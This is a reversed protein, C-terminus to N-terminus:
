DPLLFSPVPALFLPLGVAYVWLRLRPVHPAERHFARYGPAFWLLFVCSWVLGMVRVGDRTPDLAVALAGSGPLLSVLGTAFHHAANGLARLGKLVSPPM